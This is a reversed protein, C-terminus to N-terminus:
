KLLIFKKVNLFQHRGDTSRADIEYFYIGSTLGALNFSIKHYGATETTNRLVKVTEGLVNYIILKVMSEYQLSYRITTSPNFPNPYNQELSYSYPKEINNSVFTPSEVTITGIMGLGVHYICKYHFVGDHSFVHSFSLHSQDLPGNWVEEGVSSDSTTTHMGNVWVWKVTDGQSITLSSPTFVFDSAQVIHTTQAFIINNFFLFLTFLIASIFIKM